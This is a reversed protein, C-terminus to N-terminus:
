RAFACISYVVLICFPITLLFGIGLVRTNPRAILLVAGLTHLGIGAVIGTGQGTYGGLALCFFLAIAGLVIGLVFEVFPHVRPTESHKWQRESIPDSYELIPKERNEEARTADWM